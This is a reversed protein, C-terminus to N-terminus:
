ETLTIYIIGDNGRLMVTENDFELQIGLNRAVKATAYSFTGQLRIEPKNPRIDINYFDSFNVTKSLMALEKVIDFTKTDSMNNTKINM